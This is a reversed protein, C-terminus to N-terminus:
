EFVCTSGIPLDMDDFIVIIDEAPVKYWRALEGVAIGSLNM